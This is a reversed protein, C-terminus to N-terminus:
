QQSRTERPERKAERPREQDGAEGGTTERKAERPRRNSRHDGTTEWFTFGLERNNLTRKGEPHLLLLLLLLLERFM